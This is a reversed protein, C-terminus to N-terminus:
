AWASRRTALREGRKMVFLRKAVVDRTAAIGDMVPMRIDMLLVDPEHARTAQIAAGFWVYGRGCPRGGSVVM